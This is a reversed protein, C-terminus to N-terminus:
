AALRPVELAKILIGHADFSALKRPGHFLALTGDYYRHVRVQTRVYHYRFEDAPIQLSLGEVSVCNDNNVTREHQQCLIDPLSGSIFAVYAKGPLTSAVCFERNHTPRYVQELYQNARGMDVIGARALEQPLRGQHTQFARESRGRAEPSYAGIHGIGLQKLARGVQTLNVKDVKGGAEPTTFYHSGRDTYLSAFLGYRAITQGIGHFSSDSGEQHCFFMSTHEGTADDMTVVLDWVAEPVWRHTSADQHLMMGALPARARKIRHKGRRKSAKVVGAGQLVSKLWSYSRQGKFEAKYKSHFHALNWGAFSNKYLQVVHGVEASSARRKSIQSLRRDLLGQMGDAEFREIHRRFSRECQGLLLAAETQTLRGENWGEYAEQFRMKRNEQVYRARSIPTDQM